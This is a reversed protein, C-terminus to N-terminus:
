AWQLSQADVAGDRLKATFAILVAHNNGGTQHDGAFRCAIVNM